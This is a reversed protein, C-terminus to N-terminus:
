TIIDPWAASLCGGIRVPSLYKTLGTTDDSEVFIGCLTAEGQAPEMRQKPIKGKFRAIPIDKHMGIVSNYDGCMGADSQYATGNPFIQYDASPVHTHSGVVLTVKGDLMQGMAMKESNAEGHVDVIIGAINPHTLQYAQLMDEIALFPCDLHDQMFLRTMVNVVIVQKGNQLTHTAVGRGPLSKNSFNIPRLLKPDGDIYPIIIKQDWIHNGTTIIDTGATYLEECIQPTVGFGGAANEANVVVIDLKLQKRLQPLNNTIAERGSRGVVDGLFLSRM